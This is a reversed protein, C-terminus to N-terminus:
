LENKEPQDVSKLFTIKSFIWQAEESTTSTLLDNELDSLGFKPNWRTKVLKWKSNEDNQIKLNNSRPSRLTRSFPENFYKSFPRLDIYIKWLNILPIFRLYLDCKFWIREATLLPSLGVVEHNGSHLRLANQWVARQKGLSSVLIPLFTWHYAEKLKQQCTVVTKSCLSLHLTNGLARNACTLIKSQSSQECLELLIKTRQSLGKTLVTTSNCTSQYTPDFLFM